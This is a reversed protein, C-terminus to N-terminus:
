TRASACGRRMNSKNPKSSLLVKASKRRLSPSVPRRGRSGRMALLPQMTAAFSSFMSGTRLTRPRPLDTKKQELCAVPTAAAIIIALGATLSRLVKKTM